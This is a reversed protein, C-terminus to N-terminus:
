CDLDQRVFCGSSVESHRRGDAMPVVDVVAESCVSLIGDKLANGVELATLCGQVLGTCHPDEVAGGTM